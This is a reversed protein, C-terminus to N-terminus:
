TGMLGLDYGFVFGGFGSFISVVILTPTIKFKKKDVTVDSGGDDLAAEVSELNEAHISLINSNSASSSTPIPPDVDDTTANEEEMGGYVQNSTTRTAKKRPECSGCFNKSDFGNIPEFIGM